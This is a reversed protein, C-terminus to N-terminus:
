GLCLRKRRTIFSRTWVSRSKLRKMSAKWTPAVSVRKGEVIEVRKVIGEVILQKGKYKDEAAKADKAFDATLQEATVAVAPDPGIDISQCDTIYLIADGGGNCRGRVKISQGKTLAVAKSESPM